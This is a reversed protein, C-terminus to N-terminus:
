QGGLYKRYAAVWDWSIEQQAQELPLSGNCVQQHLENELDDKLRANWQGDYPQVWLNTETNDGGLELPILHDLEFEKPRHHLIGYRRYVEAKEEYPVNRVRRSYGPICVQAATAEKFVSGPTLKRNPLYPVDDLLPELSRAVQPQSRESPAKVSPESTMPAQPSLLQGWWRQTLLVITAITVIPLLNTILRFAKYRFSKM